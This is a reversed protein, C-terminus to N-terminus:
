RRGWRLYAIPGVFNVAIGWAWWRKSGRVQAAPRRALDAWAAAALAVQVAGLAVVVGRQRGSLSRWSKRRARVSTSM